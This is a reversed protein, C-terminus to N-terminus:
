VGHIPTGCFIHAAEQYIESLTPHGHVARALQGITVNASKALAAESILECAGEGFIEVGLIKGAADGIIKIFGETKGMLYAKGSALYPFKAFTADAHKSKAEEETLGVSAIEPDTWVCNPINSYDVTRSGGLMNDVATIGDYSAKHALQPGPVCDGIAYVDKARTRLYADVVIRGNKVEIGSEGLGLGEVNAKRGVAVLVPKAPRVSAAGPRFVTSARVTVGRKRFLSEMKKSAERSQTALIRDLMEIVTVNSGLASFLSAFECGIVGGGVITLEEPIEKIGLIGDSSYVSKEDIDLGPLSMPRSGAAIIIYGAKIAAGNVSVAGPGTIRGEGRVLDVSNARFLTEIGARLRSVVAEKRASLRAFDVSFSGVNIGFEKSDKIKSLISASNLLAKTPICGRNLCTGGILDKEIVCTKLKKRSAYLAAIYGGPGSGIIVLDYSKTDVM